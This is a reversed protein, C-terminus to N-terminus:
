AQTKQLLNEIVERMEPVYNKVAYWLVDLDVRGYAHVLRHRMGVMKEWQLEPLLSRTELSIKSAAEGIIQLAHSVVYQNRFEADFAEKTMEGVVLAAREANLLM